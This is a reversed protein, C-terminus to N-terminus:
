EHFWYGDPQGLLETFLVMSWEQYIFRYTWDHHPLDVTLVMAVRPKRDKKWVIIPKRQCNEAELKVQKIFEDLQAHGGDFASNLDVDNYGGKSEIVFKFKEPAVIDGTFTEQAHKPMNGRVQWIRNGSGITRSFGQTNFRENLLKIFEREVRKGKDGSNVKKKRKKKMLFDEELIFDEM